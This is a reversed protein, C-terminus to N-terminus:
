SPTKFGEPYVTEKKVYGVVGVVATSVAGEFAVLEPSLTFGFPPFFFMNLGGWLATMVLCALTAATITSSPQNM